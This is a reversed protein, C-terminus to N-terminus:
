ISEYRPRDHCWSMGGGGRLGERSYAPHRGLNYLTWNAGASTTDHGEFMFTDVEERIDADSLPQGDITSALLLDLLALRKRGQPSTQPTESADKSKSLEERRSQIVSDTFGHLLKLCEQQSQYLSTRRFLFDSRLWPKLFRFFSIEGMRYVARVYDSRAGQQAKIQVGMTAECIIDLTAKTIYPFVDTRQGNTERLKSVLVKSQENFATMFQDLISFHFAPTLMKRRKHWKSGASILLGDGLWPKLGDYEEGKQIHQNSSLVVEAAEPTNIIVYDSGLKLHFCGQFEKSWGMLVNLIETMDSPMLLASGILPYM